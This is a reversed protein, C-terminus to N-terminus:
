APRSAAEEAVVTKEIDAAYRDFQLVSLRIRRAAEVIAKTDAELAGLTQHMRELKGDQQPDELQALLLRQRHEGIQKQVNTAMTLIPELQAQVSACSCHTPKRAEDFVAKLKAKM